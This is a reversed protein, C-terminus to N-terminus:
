LILLEGHGTVFEFVFDESLGRLAHLDDEIGALRHDGLGARHVVHGIAHAEFCAHAIARRATHEALQPAHALPHDGAFRQEEGMEGVLALAARPNGKSRGIGTGHHWHVKGPKAALQDALLIGKKARGVARPDADTEALTDAGAEETALAENQLAQLAIAQGENWAPPV